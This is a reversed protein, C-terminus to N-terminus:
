QYTEIVEEGKVEEEKEEEGEEQEQEGQDGGPSAPFYLHEFATISDRM